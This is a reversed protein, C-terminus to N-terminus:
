QRVAAHDRHIGHWQEFDDLKLRPDPRIAARTSHRGLVGDNRPGGRSDPRDGPDDARMVLREGVRGNARFAVNLADAGFGTVQVVEAM